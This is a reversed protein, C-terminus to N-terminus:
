EDRLFDRMNRLYKTPRDPKPENEDDKKPTEAPVLPEVKKTAQLQAVKYALVKNGVDEGLYNWLAEGELGGMLTKHQTGMRDKFEAVLLDPTLDLGAELFDRGIEALHRHFAPNEGFGAKKLSENWSKRMEDIQRRQVEEHAAREQAERATREKTEYEALRKRTQELEYKMPDAKQQEEAEFKRALHDIALKELDIGFAPDKLAEFPNEKVAKQLAAFTKRIEAAEAFKAEAGLGKQVHLQLEETTYEREEERGNVKTKLKIRQLTEAKTEGPKAEPHNNAAPSDGGEQLPLKADPVGSSAKAAPQAAPAASPTAQAGPQLNPSAAPASSAPSSSSPTSAPAAPAATPVDSM